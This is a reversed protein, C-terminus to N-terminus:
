RDNQQEEQEQSSLVKSSRPGEVTRSDHPRPGNLRDVRGRGGQDDNRGAVVGPRNPVPAADPPHLFVHIDMPQHMSLPKLFTLLNGEVSPMM